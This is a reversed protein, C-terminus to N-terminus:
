KSKGMSKLLIKLIAKQDKDDGETLKGSILGKVTETVKQIEKRLITKHEMQKEEKLNTIKNNKEWAKKSFITDDNKMMIALKRGFNSNPKINSFEGDNAKKDWKEWIFVLKKFIRTDKYKSLEKKLAKRNKYAWKKFDLYAFENPETQPFPVGENLKGEQLDYTFTHVGGGSSINSWKKHKLEVPELKQISKIVEKPNIKYGYFISIEKNNLKVIKPPTNGSYDIKLQYAIDKKNLKAENIGEVIGWTVRKNNLVSVLQDLYKVDIDIIVM